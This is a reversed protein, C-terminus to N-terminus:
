DPPDFICITMAREVVLAAESSHGDAFVGPPATADLTVPLEEIDVAVLDAADEALYADGAFVAAFVLALHAALM